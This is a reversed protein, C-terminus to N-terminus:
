AVSLFIQVANVVQEVAQLSAMTDGKIELSHNAAEIVVSEGATATELEALYVPNYHPDAAGVVFLSRPKARGIQTRLQDNWLLPTLWIARANTLKPESTLMTGMALTGLSKGVLTIQQYPRQNLAATCAATADASVWRAKEAPSLTDFGPQKVYMTELRLVDAGRHVLELASYYLLPMYVTYGVGPILIALHDTDGEQKLFTHPLPEDRYGTIKLDLFSVV